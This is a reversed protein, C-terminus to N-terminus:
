QNIVFDIKIWDDEDSNQDESSQNSSLVTSGIAFVSVVGAIVALFGAFTGADVPSKQLIKKDGTLCIIIEKAFNQCNQFLLWYEM